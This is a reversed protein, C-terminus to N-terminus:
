QSQSLLQRIQLQGLVKVCMSAQLKADNQRACCFIPFHNGPSDLAKIGVVSSLLGTGFIMITQPKMEVRFVHQLHKPSGICHVIVFHLSCYRCDSGGGKSAIVSSVCVVLSSLRHNLSLTSISSHLDLLPFTNIKPIKTKCTFYEYTLNISHSPLVSMRYDDDEGVTSLGSKM